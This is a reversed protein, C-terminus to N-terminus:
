RISIRGRAISGIADLRLHDETERRPNLYGSGGHVRGNYFDANADVIRAPYNGVHQEDKVFVAVFDNWVDDKQWSVYSELLAPSLKCRRAWTVLAMGSDPYFRWCDAPHRHFPGNSPVNLYFLGAPKLIRLIETFLLWFMESHEFVSSSLCVDVSETEFPLQYPDTIVVDVGKGAAFDVGVYDMGPPCVERLSGNVDQAGIEVIRCRHGASLYTKFFFGANTLATPHV